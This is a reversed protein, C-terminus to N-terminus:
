VGMLESTDIESIQELTTSMVNTIAIAVDFVDQDLATTKVKGFTCNKLIDNGKEDQTNTNVKIRLSRLLATKNVAM